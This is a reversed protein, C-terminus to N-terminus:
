NGGVQRRQRDEKHTNKSKVQRKYIGNHRCAHTRTSTLKHRNAQQTDTKRADTNRSKVQRKDTGNQESSHIRHRDRENDCRKREVQKM